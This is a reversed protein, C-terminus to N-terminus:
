MKGGDLDVDAFFGPDVEEIKVPTEGDAFRSILKGSSELGNKLASGALDDDIEVADGLNVTGSDRREDPDGCAEIASAALEAEDAAGAANAISEGDGAEDFGDGSEVGFGGGEGVKGSSVASV